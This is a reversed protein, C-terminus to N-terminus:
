QPGQAGSKCRLFRRKPLMFISKAHKL